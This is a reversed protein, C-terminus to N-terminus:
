WALRARNYVHVDHGRRALAGALSAFAKEAGGLPRSTSAYGDFPISITSWLSICPTVKYDRTFFDSAESATSKWLQMTLLFHAQPPGAGM